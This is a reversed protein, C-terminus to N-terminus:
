AARASGNMMKVEKNHKVLGKHAARQSSRIQALRVSVQKFGEMLEAIRRDTELAKRRLESLEQQQAANREVVLKEKQRLKQNEKELAHKDQRLMLGQREIRGDLGIFRTYYNLMDFSKWGGRHRIADLSILSPNDKALLRLHVAGSHRFDYLTLNRYLDGEAHSRSNGFVQGAVRKFKRNMVYPSFSWLREEPRINRNRIYDILATGCYLLNFSRGFTKAVEDPITVWTEGDRAYVHKAQLSLLETPARIISDFLFTLLLQEDPDFFPLLEDVDSKTLYVFRPKAEKSSRIDETIDQIPTGSRRNVKMWWHWFAKLVRAYDDFSKYITGRSTRLVGKEMDSFLQVVDSDTATTIDDIGRGQLFRMVQSLRTRLNCLQTYSRGGRKSHRSVNLGREMDLVYRVLLDSNPKTLGPEGEVVADAKWKRYRAELGYVDVKM